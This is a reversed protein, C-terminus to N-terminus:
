ISPLKASLLSKKAPDQLWLRFAQLAKARHSIAAKAELSMEALTLGTAPWVFVPDYGFGNDGREETILLGDCRGEFVWEQDGMWLVLTCVFAAHRQESSLDRIADLLKARNARDKHPGTIGAYSASNVGPLGGLAPVILGSDDALSPLGTHLWASRAKIRANGLFSEADEVPEPLDPIDAATWLRIPLDKLYATIEKTKGANHTCILLENM